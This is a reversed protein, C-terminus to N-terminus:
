SGVYPRLLDEMEQVSIEGRHMQANIFFTPTSNVGLKDAARQRVWKIGDLINQDALCADFSAKTFGYQGVIRFLPQEPKPVVWDSQQRFLARIVDFFKENGACRALMSGAAALSDLPFERLIYRVKGTDIYRSKLTPYVSVDFRACHPCTMSAYEIFTVPADAKGQSMDGLPGAVMLDDTSPHDTAGRDAQALRIPDGADRSWASPLYRGAFVAAALLLVASLVRASLVRYSPARRM